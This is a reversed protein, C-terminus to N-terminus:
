GVLRAIYEHDPTEEVIGEIDAIALATRLAELVVLDVDVESELWDRAIRAAYSLYAAGKGHNESQM